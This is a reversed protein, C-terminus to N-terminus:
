SLLVYGKQYIEGIFAAASMIAKDMSTLDFDCQSAITIISMGMTENIVMMLLLGCTLLMIWQSKGFGIMELVDEYAFQKESEVPVNGAPQLSVRPTVVVACNESKTAVETGAADFDKKIYSM